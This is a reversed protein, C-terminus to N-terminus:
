VVNEMCKHGGGCLRGQIFRMIALLIPAVIGAQHYTPLCGILVTPITITLISLLM